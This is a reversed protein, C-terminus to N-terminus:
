ARVGARQALAVRQAITEAIRDIDADSRVSWQGSININVAGAAASDQARAERATLVREGQHLIAAYGDYPVRNLGAAHLFAQGSAFGPYEGQAGSIGLSPDPLLASETSMRGKSFEQERQYDFLYGESLAATNERLAAILEDETERLLGYEESNEYAVTALGEAQRALSEMKLGAQENGEIYSRSAEGYQTRLEALKDQFKEDFLTTEGGTLVASLAERRYQEQLNEMFAENGGSARNLLKMADGLAGGYAEIEASLGAKRADNYGEGRANDLEATTDELTSTLGSFTQAMTEMAGRYADGEMGAQIIDVAKRGDIEGKSIMDYIQGQTKGYEDALMGIVNVGREQLINLYELTAKGSGQMRSMAQAMMTMDSATVGVASGADGIAQMLELMREPSDGFGTALARSMGTLDGYELPTEAALVRLESLYEDGVGAGLLKNFAIADLERQSATATGATLSEERATEGAEFLGRYYEKFADDKEQYIESGGSLLGSLGGIVAGAVAGGPVISGMIAGSAAGSLISSVMQGGQQGAASSVTAGTLQVASDALKRGVESTLLTKALGSGGSSGDARNAARSEAEAADRLQQGIEIQRSEFTRQTQSREAVMGPFAYENVEDKLKRYSERAQGAGGDVEKLGAALESSGMAAADAAKNWDKIGKTLSDVDKGLAKTQKSLTNMKQGAQGDVKVAIEIEEAM